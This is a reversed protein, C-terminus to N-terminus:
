RQPESGNAIAASSWLGSLAGDSNFIPPDLVTVQPESRQALRDDPLTVTLRQDGIRLRFRVGAGIDRMAQIAVPLVCGQLPLAEAVIRDPRVGITRVPDVPVFNTYGLLKAAAVTPPEKLLTRVEGAGVIRGNDVVLMDDAFQAVLELEHAVIVMPIALSGLLDDLLDLLERRLRDDLGQFPEDLLLARNRRALTRAISVRQAQGGSLQRPRADLVSGLELRDILPSVVTAFTADRAYMLNDRVSLHPFLMPRQGILGVRRENPPVFVPRAGEGVRTLVVDGLTVTGHVPLVLGAVVELATSKGAGSPGFVGLRRGPQVAFSLEVRSANRELWFEAELVDVGPM